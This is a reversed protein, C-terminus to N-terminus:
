MTIWGDGSIVHGQENLERSINQLQNLFRIKDEGGLPRPQFVVAKNYVYIPYIKCKEIGNTGYFFKLVMSERANESYSGFIFNGLSYAILKGKYIEIGQVVHPHHGLILDAGSDIARHALQIQYKKPTTMLESGWHFSVIVLDYNKKFKQLDDYFFTHFPFCTGASSDTAWFESPFTLSYSAFAIRRGRITLIAPRRAEKLNFGAGSYKIKSRELVELTQKLAKKGFDLIHNNALSVVNIRAASLVQVLDPSVRFTYAKPYASDGRGFPAELNAFVIDTGSFISDLHQFPYDWGNREIVDQAWSGLMLDGAAVIKISEATTGLSNHCYLPFVLFVFTFILQRYKKIPM